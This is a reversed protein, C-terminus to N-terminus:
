KLGQKKIKRSMMTILDAVRRAWLKNTRIKEFLQSVCNKAKIADQLNKKGLAQEFEYTLSNALKKIMYINQADLSKLNQEYKALM